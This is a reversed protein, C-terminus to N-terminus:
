LADLYVRLGDRQQIYQQRLATPLDPLALFASLTEHERRITWVTTHSCVCRRIHVPRLSLAQRIRQSKQGAQQPTLPPLHLHHIKHRSLAKISPGYCLQLAIAPLVNEVLAADISRRDPHQCVTCQVGPPRAPM